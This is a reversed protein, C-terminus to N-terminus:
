PKKGALLTKMHCYNKGRGNDSGAVNIRYEKVVKNRKLEEQKLLLETGREGM